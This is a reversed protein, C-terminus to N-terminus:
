DVDRLALQASYFDGAMVRKETFREVTCYHLEGENPYPGDPDSEGSEITVNHDAFVLPHFSDRQATRMLRLEEITSQPVLNLNLSKGTALGGDEVVSRSTDQNEDQEYSDEFTKDYPESVAYPLHIYQGLMIAAIQYDCTTGTAGYVKIRWYRKSVASFTGCLHPWPNALSSWFDIFTDVHTDFTSGNDTSGVTLRINGGGPKSDERIDHGIIAWATISTASGLDVIVHGDQASSSPKWVTHIDEDQLHEAEYGTQESSPTLTGSRFVDDYIFLGTM